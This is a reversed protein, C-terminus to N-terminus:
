RGKAFWKVTGAYKAGTIVASTPSTSKVSMAVVSDTSSIDIPIVFFCENFAIPFRITVQNAQDTFDAIGWQEIEGNPLIKWGNNATLNQSFQERFWQSNIVKSSNDDKNPTTIHIEKFRRNVAGIVNRNDADPLIRHDDHIKLSHENNVIITTIAGRNRIGFKVNDGQCLDVDAGNGGDLIVQAILSHEILVGNSATTRGNGINNDTRIHLDALPNIDLPVNIGYRHTETNGSIGKGLALKNNVVGDSPNIDYGIVISNKVSTAKNLSEAGIIISNNANANKGANRGIAVSSTANGNEFAATGLAVSSLAEKANKLAGAGVAVSYIARTASTLAAFGLATNQSSVVNPRTTNYVHCLVANGNTSLIKPSEVTLTNDVKTLVTAAVIDNLLTQAEGDLLRLGISCGVDAEHLDDFTLTITNGSQSYRGHEQGRWIVTGGNPAVDSELQRMAGFGVATNYLGNKLNHAAYAGIAVSIENARYYCLAGEGIAVSQKAQSPYYHEIDGGFGVTVHGAIAGAGLAVNGHGTALNQGANRGISINSYGTTIGRGANGGIAINRTGDPQSQNYWPNKANVLYLSDAGIAINDMTKEATGLARSGIAISGYADKLNAAANRGIIILNNHPSVRTTGIGGANAGFIINGGGTRYLHKWRKGNPTVIITSNNDESLADTADYYYTAFGFGLTNQQMKVLCLQGNKIPEFERLAAISEVQGAMVRFVQALQTLDAKDPEIGAEKLVNLLEAQVINFWHAGPYSPSNGDRGETFWLPNKSFVEPIEPMQEIGSKNDLAYM